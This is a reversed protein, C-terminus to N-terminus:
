YTRETAVRTGIKALAFFFKSKNSKEFFNCFSLPSFINECTYWFIKNLGGGGGKQFSDFVMTTIYHLADHV